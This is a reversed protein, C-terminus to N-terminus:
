QKRTGTGTRTAGATSTGATSTGTTASKTMSAKGRGSRGGATGRTRAGGTRSGGTGRPPHGVSVASRDLSVELDDRDLSVELDDVVVDIRKCDPAVATVAARIQGAIEPITPGFRAIVHVAVGGLVKRVGVVRRDPLYTVVNGSVGPSLAAVVPCRAVAAAIAAPQTSM